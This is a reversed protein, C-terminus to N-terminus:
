RGDDLRARPSACLSQPCPYRYYLGNLYVTVADVEDPRFRAASNTGWREVQSRLQAFDKAVRSERRHVSQEHCATCHTEYLSKGRDVDQAALPSWGVLAFVCGPLLQTFRKM